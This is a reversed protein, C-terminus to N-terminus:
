AADRVVELKPRGGNRAVSQRLFTIANTVSAAPPERGAEGVAVMNLPEVYRDGAPGIGNMNERRRIENVSIWGWNRAVAYADFRTKIDGRLLSEVNFEFYDEIGGDLFTKGISREILELWPGLTDVVFELSQHEINSFTAKELIGVKHPPVRWLRAIDSWLEKRTELFQSQENTHSPQHLDMGYELVAPKHRNRGGFWRQWASLFNERDAADKFNGKHKFILPPTADNKFFTNAYAQLALAAAIAERGDALIPSRGRLGDVFPPLAIFWVEDDLLVREPRGPENIRFRRTRDQLEEVRYHGPAIRWLQERATFAGRREALFEGEAALDDVLNAIFEFSTDRPNPNALLRAVPHNQIRRRDDGIDRSFVGFGLGATTSSLVQLCARVVPVQRARATTVTVGAATERGAVGFWFDDSPDRPRPEAPMDARLGGSTGNARSIGLITGITTAAGM